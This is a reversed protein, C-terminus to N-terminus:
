SVRRSEVDYGVDDVKNPKCVVVIALHRKEVVDADRACMANVLGVGDHKVAVM